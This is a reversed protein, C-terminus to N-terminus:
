SLMRSNIIDIERINKIQRQYLKKLKVTTKFSLCWANKTSCAIALDREKYDGLYEVKPGEARAWSVEDECAEDLVDAAEVAVQNDTDYM